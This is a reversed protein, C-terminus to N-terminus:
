PAAIQMEPLSQYYDLTRSLLSGLTGELLKRLGARGRNKLLAQYYCRDKATHELLVTLAQQWTLCTEQRALTRMAEQQMSWDFLSQVDPFHYYFSQRRIGCLATLERVRIQELPKQLLLQRLARDLDNKTRNVCLEAPM